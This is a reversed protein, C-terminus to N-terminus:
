SYQKKYYDLYEGSTIKRWWDKNNKYWEVTKTLGDEFSVEPRWGFDSIKKTDIAYRRDHGPRDKVYDIFTENKGCANIIKKTLSLNDIEPNQNAGINYVEGLVGKHLVIDIGKCNDEVYLWDRIQAGDGYVPVKKDELLNTIFVPIIKEPYQYPGYNNSSRTIIIPTGYTRHHALCLLDGSAKSASYPSSPLLSADEKAFGRDKYDGYVEDTSIQIMKKIGLDKVAELLVKVGFIDTKLFDDDNIISRDVHTEAAFNIIIDVDQLAGRVAEKDCIDGKIFRYNPNNEIDRLNELNGAYTLKDFNIIKYEPYKKLIYRIFNSGIFGAGGTIFLKM